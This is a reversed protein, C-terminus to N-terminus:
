FDNIVVEGTIVKEVDNQMNCDAVQLMVLIVNERSIKKGFILNYKDQYYEISEILTNPVNLRVGKKDGKVIEKRADDLSKIGTM